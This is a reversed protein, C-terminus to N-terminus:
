MGLYTHVSEFAYLALLALSTNFVIAGLTLPVLVRIFSYRILGLPLTIIDSPFPILCGYFFILLPLLRPHNNKVYEFKKMVHELRSSLLARGFYGLWYSVSDGLTVGIGAVVGLIYPNLGSLAFTILILHYPIGSLIMLGDIAALIFILLYANSVGISGVIVSPPMLYLVSSFVVLAMACLGMTWVQRRTLKAPRPIKEAVVAGVARATSVAARVSARGGKKASVKKETKEPM